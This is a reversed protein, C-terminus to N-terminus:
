FKASVSASLSTGVAYRNYFVTNGGRQQYEKYGHGLLNRAEFKLELETGFLNLGQRVVFDLIFGPSEYIDPLGAAGRSTVRDSAYSLLLTQQSLAQTDELGVQLNVLHDSQGTLPAGDVFFNTAPQTTTGFVSVTDGAGVKIKSNTFTYNGILVLRRSALIAMDSLEDLPFYKQVDTEIGYLSASPANAFSTVPSNDNFGTFAEIPKDITKYFGAVSFQQEPAYYWEYRAEANVFRSDVLLPNGRYARNSEPDFYAQFILERFQPRAITASGNLRVQMNDSFKYTVTAAPLVYDEELLTSATSANATAFVQKGRVSQTGREFRAGANIELGAAIEAQAQVYGAQTRLEAAFAPDSETTEILGINYDDIVQPALLYDPRLLGIYSPFSSPAIIQFERRASDRKTDTFDYGATLVVDRWVRGTVDVGASSLNETLDSFSAQAFGSQGNDLRNIYYGGYPSAALNTRVYGLGLEFPAKRSSRAYAARANITVPELKFEGTLQTNVLQREYWGTSQELFDAGFRQNNQKGEALSTRKLTDHVYLNTWRLKHGDGFEYGLGLLANTVAHNETAISHYDKDIASLDLSGPSQEINDRTRWKNSFGATAILGLDSDDFAWSTGGTVSMSYNGPISDNRQVLANEANVFQRAIEGSDVNGASLREGSAIFSQLASPLNRNGGDYGTWDSRNGYHTYGLSGSTEADGSVGFSFNLFPMRPTALTTLNIVGGGFEGPFNASYTKQVLSSAIVDTPFLDLPVARRLPEPSPLPSGNLLAQSYRDGLGRVYVFGGGVVSLGTVRGLAGAIDGEGTRAIDENSLLSIVQTTAREINSDRRGLVIIEGGPAAVDVPAETSAEDAAPAPSAAQAAGQAAAAALVQAMATPLTLANAVLLVGACTLPKAM